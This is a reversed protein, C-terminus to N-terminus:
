ELAIIIFFVVIFLIGAGVLYIAGAKKVNGNAWDYKKWHYFITVSFVVFVLLVAMFVGWMFLPSLSLPEELSSIEKLIETGQPM